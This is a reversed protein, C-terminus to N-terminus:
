RPDDYNAPLVGEVTIDTPVGVKDKYYAWIALMGILSVGGCVAVSERVGIAEVLYGIALSGFPTGGMFILLYIGTIRGRIAPDSHMQVLSNASILMTLASFGCIPLWSAYLGYTPMVSLILISLSFLTGTKIVFMTNRQKEFRASILAGSLSGVAIFTGLLGFSAPGKNFEGRAMLANFIQFNLGFTAAFFVAIMLVYLDPRAKVYALGERITGLTKKTERRFFESERMSLLAINVAVYSFANIIFSPGTGFHAILFGSVTPGILRGANFNASNLSVANALDAHGVIESTFSQRIPADIAGSIGLVAACAFVHWLQINGSLVLLGLVLASLGGFTNTIVLAIRKNVRDALLGGHLTFFLFPAFQIATVLGLYYGSNDTLELVLWDQAIRQAWSGINSVANAPFLIRYNRHRFSRWNGNEDVRMGM